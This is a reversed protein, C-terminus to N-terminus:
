NLVESGYIGYYYGMKVYSPKGDISWDTVPNGIILGKLNMKPYKSSSLPPEESSLFRKRSTHTLRFNLFDKLDQRLVVEKNETPRTWSNYQDIRFALYPVYVGAYSEGTLYLDNPLYEPFKEYFSIMADLNDLSSSADSDQNCLRYNDCYSYGVGAPSEIYLVNAEKNWSWKNEIFPGDEEEM